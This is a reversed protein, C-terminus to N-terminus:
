GTTWAALADGLIAGLRETQDPDTVDLAELGTLAAVLDVGATTAAVRGAVLDPTVGFADIVGRVAYADSACLVTLAVRDRLAAIATEGGYPELPSAGAEAVLLNVGADEVAGLVRHVADEVTAAPAVTSPLGANVFDAIMQAGADRMGLIDAYRGVGVLKVGAVRLGRGTARRIIAKAATTKGASMSSAILLVVPPLRAPANRPPLAVDSMSITSGGSALHGRYAVPVILHRIWPAASTCRGLVGARTLTSMMLDDGVERWDGVAELTARRGGLAGVILDGDWVEEMRGSVSEIQWPPWGRGVVQGLVYDGTRWRERPVPVAHATGDDPPLIRAVSTRVLRM